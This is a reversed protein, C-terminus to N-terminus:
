QYLGDALGYKLCKNANLYLDHKLLEKLAKKPLNVRKGYIDMITKMFDDVNKMHDKIAEYKGWVGSAIQHILMYSHPTILRRNAATSMITGASAAYGDVVSVTPVKCRAIADMASMAAMFSGGPSHIHIFIEPPQGGQSISQMLLTEEVKLLEKNFLLISKDDVASFFYVKNGVSSVNSNGPPMFSVTDLINDNGLKIM